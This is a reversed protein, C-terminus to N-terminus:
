YTIQGSGIQTGLGTFILINVLIVSIVTLSSIMIVRYGKPMMQRRLMLLFSLSLLAAISLSSIMTANAIMKGAYSIGPFVVYSQSCIGISISVVIATTLLIFLNERMFSLVSNNLNVTVLEPHPDPDTHKDASESGEDKNIDPTKFDIERLIEWGDQTILYQKSDKVVYKAMRELHYYISGTSLGTADRIESFGASGESGAIARLIKLRTRRARLQTEGTM